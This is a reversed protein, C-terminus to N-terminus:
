VSFSFFMLVLFGGIQHKLKETKKNKHKETIDM